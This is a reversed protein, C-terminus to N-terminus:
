KSTGCVRACVFVCVHVRDQDSYNNVLTDRRYKILDGSQQMNLHFTLAM